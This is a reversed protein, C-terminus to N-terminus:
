SQAAPKDFMMWNEQNRFFQLAEEMARRAGQRSALADVIHSHWEVSKLLETVSDSPNRMIFFAFLPGVITDLSKFLHRNGSLTWIKQHFQIDARYFQRLDSSQAAKEMESVRTRLEEIDAPTARQEALETALGELEHRVRIIQAIDDKSLQTVFTGRNTLRTVFGQSELEFLAERVSTTAVGLEGALKMEVIRDGPELKGSLIADKILESVRDKLVVRRLPATDIRKGTGEFSM